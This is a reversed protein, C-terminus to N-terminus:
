QNMHNRFYTNLQDPHDDSEFQVGILSSLTSGVMVKNQYRVLVDKQIFSHAQDDLHFEVRLKQDHVLTQFISTELLLGGRSINKVIMEGATEADDIKYYTGPLWVPKRYYRRREVCVKTKLHCTPCAFTFHQPQHSPIDDSINLEQRTKCNPCSVVAKKSQTTLFVTIMQDDTMM